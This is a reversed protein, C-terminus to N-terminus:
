KKEEPSVEKELVTGTFFRAFAGVATKKGSPCCCSCQGRKVDDGVAVTAEAADCNPPAIGTQPAPAV